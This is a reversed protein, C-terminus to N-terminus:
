TKGPDGALPTKLEFRTDRVFVGSGAVADGSGAAGGEDEDAWPINNVPGPVYATWQSRPKRLLTGTGSMQFKYRVPVVVIWHDRDAEPGVTPVHFKWKRAATLSADALVKRYKPQRPIMSYLDVKRVAARMVRGDRGVDLVLFVEGGVGHFAADTPYHPPTRQAETVMSGSPCTETYERSTRWSDCGFEAGAVWITAHEKDHWDAVLRLTMGTRATVAKGDTKVPVFMWGSVTKQVIQRVYSPLTNEKDLAYGRVSGDPNVTITGNVVMSAEIPTGSACALMPLLLMLLLVCAISRKM